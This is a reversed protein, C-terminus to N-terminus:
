KVIEVVVPIAFSPRAVRGVILAGNTGSVASAASAEDADFSLQREPEAAFSVTLLCIEEERAAGICFVREACGLENRDHVVAARGVIM